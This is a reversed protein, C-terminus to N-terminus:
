SRNFSFIQNKSEFGNLNNKKIENEWITNMSFKKAKIDNFLNKNIIQVGTYIYQNNNEKTLKSNM